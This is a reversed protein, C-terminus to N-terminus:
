NNCIQFPRCVLSILFYYLPQFVKFVLKKHESRFSKGYLIYIFFQSAYKTFSVVESLKLLAEFLYNMDGGGITQSKKQHFKYTMLVVLYPLYFIIFYKSISAIMASIRISYTLNTFVSKELLSKGKINRQILALSNPQKKYLVSDPQQPYKENLYNLYINYKQIESFAYADNEDKDSATVAAAAASASTPEAPQAMLNQFYRLKRHLIFNMVFIFVLPVIILFTFVLAMMTVSITWKCFTRESKFDLFRLFLHYSSCTFSLVFILSLLRKNFQVSNYNFSCNHDTFIIVRQLLLAMFTYISFYNLGSLIYPLLKCAISYYDVLNLIRAKSNFLSAWEKLGYELQFFIIILL